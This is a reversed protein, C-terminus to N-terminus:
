SKFGSRLGVCGLCNVLTVHTLSMFLGHMNEQTVCVMCEWPTKLKCIGLLRLM